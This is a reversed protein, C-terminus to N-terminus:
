MNAVLQEMKTQPLRFFEWGELATLNTAGLSEYFTKAPNWSLVHFDFRSCHEDLAFKVNTTFLKKGVGLKRYDPKVYIDELFYSKGQWTSYSFYSISYGVLKLQNENDNYEAVFSYFLQNNSSGDLNGDRILDAAKLKPGDSMNEFDALEQIMELIQAVDSLTARRVKVNNANM